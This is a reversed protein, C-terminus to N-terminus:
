HYVPSAAPQGYQAGRESAPQPQRSWVDRWLGYFFSMMVLFLMRDEIGFIDSEVLGVLFFSLGGLWVTALLASQAIWGRARAQWGSWLLWIGSALFLVPGVLGYQLLLYIYVNHPQPYAAIIGFRPLGQGLLLMSPQQEVLRLATQWLNVRWLFTALANSSVLPVVQVLVALGSVTALVVACGFRRQSRFLWHLVLLGILAGGLLVSTKAYTWLLAAGILAVTLGRLWRRPGQALLGISLLLAVLLYLAFNNPHQFFGVTYSVFQFQSSEPSPAFGLKYSSLETAFPRFSDTFHQYLGVLSNVVAGLCFLRILREWDQRVAGLLALCGLLPVLWNRVDSLSANANPAWLVSLLAWLSLLGMLLMIWPLRLGFRGRNFQDILLLGAAVVVLPEMLAFSVLGLDVRYQVTPALVLLAVLLKKM